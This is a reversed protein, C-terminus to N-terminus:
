ILTWSNAGRVVSWNYFSATTNVIIGEQNELQISKITTPLLYLGVEMNPRIVISKGKM